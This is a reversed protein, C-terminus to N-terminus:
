VVTNMVSFPTSLFAIFFCEGKNRERRNPLLGKRTIEFLQQQQKTAMSYRKKSGISQLGGPEEIWSIEWSYQLPNGNGEGPYRGSGPISGADGADASPNKVM